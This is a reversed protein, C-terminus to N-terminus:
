IGVSSLRKNTLPTEESSKKNKSFFTELITTKGVDIDGLIMINFKDEIKYEDM